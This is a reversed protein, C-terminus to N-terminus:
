EHREPTCEYKQHEHHQPPPSCSAFASLSRGHKSSRLSHFTLPPPPSSPPRPKRFQESFPSRPVFLRFRTQPVCLLHSLQLLHLLSPPRPQRRHRLQRGHMVFVRHPPSVHAPRCAHVRGHAPNSSIYPLWHLLRLPRTRSIREYTPRRSCEAIPSLRVFLFIWTHWYNIILLKYFGLGSERSM